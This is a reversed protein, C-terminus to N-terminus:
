DVRTTRTDDTHSPGCSGNGQNVEDGDSDASGKLLHTEAGDVGGDEGENDSRDGLLPIAAEDSM